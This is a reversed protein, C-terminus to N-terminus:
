ARQGLSRADGRLLEGHGPLVRALVEVVAHRRHRAAAPARIAAVRGVGEARAFQAAVAVEGRRIRVALVDAGFAAVAALARGAIHAGVGADGVVDDVPEGLVVGQVGALDQELDVAADGDEGAVHGRARHLVTGLVEGGRGAAHAVHAVPDADVVTGGGAAWWALRHALD